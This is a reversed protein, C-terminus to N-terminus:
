ANTFGGSSTVIGGGAAGAHIGANATTADGYFDFRLAGSAADGYTIQTTVPDLIVGDSDCFADQVATTAINPLVALDAWIACRYLTMNVVGRGDGIDEALVGFRAQNGLDLETVTNPSDHEQTWASNNIKTYVQAPGGAEVAVLQNVKDGIEIANSLTAGAPVVNAGSDDEIFAGARHTTSGTVFVGSNSGLDVVLGSQKAGVKFSTFILVRQVTATLGITQQLSFFATGNNNVGQRDYAPAPAEITIGNSADVVSAGNVTVTTQRSVVTMAQAGTTVFAPGTAGSIPLGDSFWQYSPVAPPYDASQLWLPEVVNIQGGVMAPGSALASVIFVPASSIAQTSITYDGSYAAPLEISITVTDESTTLSFAGDTHSLTLTPAPRPAALWWRPPTTVELPRSVGTAPGCLALLM